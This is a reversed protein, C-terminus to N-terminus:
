KSRVIQIAFYEEGNDHDIVPLKTVEWRGNSLVMLDDDEYLVSGYATFNTIGENREERTVDTNSVGSDTDADEIGPLGTIADTLDSQAAERKVRKAEHVDKLKVKKDGANDALEKQKTESLSAAAKATSPSMQGKKFKSRLDPVLKGLQKKARVQGVTLRTARAIQQETFGAKEYHEIAELDSVANPRSTNNLTAWRWVLM